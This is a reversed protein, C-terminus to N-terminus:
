FNGMIQVLEAGVGWIFLTVKSCLAYRVSIKLSTCMTKFYNVAYVTIAM